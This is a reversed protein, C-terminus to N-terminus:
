IISFMLSINAAIQSKTDEGTDKGVLNLLQYKVSADINGFAPISFSVGVGFGAGFRSRSSSGAATNSLSNFLVDAGLYPKVMVSPIPYELGAGAMWIVDSESGVKNALRHYNVSGVVNLPMFGYLRAKAGVHFGTNNTDRLTGMPMSIGGGIGLDLNVPPSVAPIQAYAATMMCMIFLLLFM